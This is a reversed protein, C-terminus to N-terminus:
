ADWRRLSERLQITKQKALLGLTAAVTLVAFTAGYTWDRSLFGLASTVIALGIAVKQVPLTWRRPPIALLVCPIYVIGTIISATSLIHNM